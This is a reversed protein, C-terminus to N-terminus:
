DRYEPPLQQRASEAFYSARCHQDQWFFAADIGAHAWRWALSLHQCRYARASLTEDAWGGLLANGVQDLAILLQMLRM